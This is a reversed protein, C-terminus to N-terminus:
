VQGVNYSISLRIWLRDGEKAQKRAYFPISSLREKKRLSEQAIPIRRRPDMNPYLSTLTEMM